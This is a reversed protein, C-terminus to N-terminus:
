GLGILQRRAVLDQTLQDLSAAGDRLLSLIRARLLTEVIDQRPEPHHSLLLENYLLLGTTEPDHSPVAVPAQGFRLSRRLVMGGYTKLLDRLQRHSAGSVRYPIVDVNHKELLERRLSEDEIASFAFIPRAHNAFRGVRRLL